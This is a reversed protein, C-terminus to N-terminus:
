EAMGATRMATLLAEQRAAFGPHDSLAQARFWGIGLEPNQAMAQAAAIRAAEGDGSLELLAALYALRVPVPLFAQGDLSARLTAAAEAWRQQHALTLALYTLWTLRFGHGPPALALTTRIPAEAEEPQGLLLLMLGANARSAHQTPDLEVGRRYSALAAEWRRQQRMVAAHAAHTAPLNAGLAIAREAHDEAIRLDAAPNLSFGNLVTNTYTFVIEAHARPNEPDLALAQNLLGRAAVWNARRDGPAINRRRAAEILEIAQERASPPSEPAPSAATIPAQTPSPAPAPGALSPASPPPPAAPWALWALAGVAAALAALGAGWRRLAKPPPAPPPAPAPRDPLPTEPPQPLGMAPPPGAHSLAVEAELLYGRKPVTKLLAADAGMARRLEVVCQTVSDDTVFVGPWVADLIEARTILRGPNRLLLLALDLTKPRLASETGDAAVLVGREADLTIGAFHLRSPPKM